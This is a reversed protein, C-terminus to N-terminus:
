EIYTYVAQERLAADMRTSPFISTRFFPFRHVGLLQFWLLSTCRLGNLFVLSIRLAHLELSTSTDFWFCWHRGVQALTPRRRWVCLVIKCRIHVDLDWLTSSSHPHVPAQAGAPPGAHPSSENGPIASKMKWCSKAVAWAATMGTGSTLVTSGASWQGAFESFRQAITLLFIRSVLDLLASSRWWLLRSRRSCVSWRPALCDTMCFGARVLYHVLSNPTKTPQSQAM